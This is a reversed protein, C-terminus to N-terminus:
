GGAGAPVEPELCVDGSLAVKEQGRGGALPQWVKGPGEADSSQQIKGGGMEAAESEATPEEVHCMLVLLALFRLHAPGM